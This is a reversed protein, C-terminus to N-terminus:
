VTSSVVRIRFSLLEDNAFGPIDSEKLDNQLQSLLTKLYTFNKYGCNEFYLELNGKFRTIIGKAKEPDMLLVPVKKSEKIDKLTELLDEDEADLHLNKVIKWTICRVDHILKLVMVEDTADEGIWENKTEKMEKAFRLAYDAANGSNVLDFHLSCLFGSEGYSFLAGTEFTFIKGTEMNPEYQLHQVYPLKSTLDKMLTLETPTVGFKELCGKIITFRHREDSEESYFPLALKGLVIVIREMEKNVDEPIKGLLCLSWCYNLLVFVSRLDHRLKGLATPKFTKEVGPFVSRRGEIANPFRDEDNIMYRLVHLGNVDPSIRVKLSENAHQLRQIVKDRIMDIYKLSLEESFKRWEQLREEQRYRYDRRLVYLTGVCFALFQSVLSIIYYAFTLDKLATSTTSNSETSNEM